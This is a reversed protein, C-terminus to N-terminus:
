DCDGYLDDLADYIGIAVTAVSTPNKIQSLFVPELIISTCRTKHLFYLLKGNKIGQYWGTKIGRNKIALGSINKFLLKNFKTALQKGNSSYPFYLTECGIASKSEASNFHLEIAVCNDTGFRKCMSNIYQVTDTLTSDITHLEVGSIDGYFTILSTVQSAVGYESLNGWRAGQSKSNHGVSLIIHKM